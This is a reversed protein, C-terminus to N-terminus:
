FRQSNNKSRHCGIRPNSWAKLSAALNPRYEIFESLVVHQLYKDLSTRERRTFKDFLSQHIV